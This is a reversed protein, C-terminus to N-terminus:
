SRLRKGDPDYVPDLTVSASSIRGDVRIHIERGEQAMPVPVWAMGIGIGMTPSQRSSTVRGVPSYGAVVPDGERPISGDRMVFGGLKIDSGREKAAVLGPRGIFDEKDFRVAWSINSNLPNSVLDTDQGPIIHMKELRLIRQAEIGFPGIGFEMGADMITDWMYEGYESPFHLEWSAEGVFGIRLFTCPVGAVEGQASRMYRFSTPTLDVSTLKALTERARPGAVNVASLASTINTVHACMGTGALWWKFWEEVVDVSLTSTTVFYHDEGLRTVTGDDMISGDDECLLGYRIRGNKLGSFTHTYVKDLLAPADRGVVDLKGLSSVDCIGVRERVTLCEQSPSGYGYPREWTGADIMQAGAERHKSDISTRKIPIYSPGALDGLSLPRVPPRSTPVGTKDVSRGTHEATIGVYRKLCMKGQCPGMTVTSYRKLTEIDDFGEDVAQTIDKTTVDECYCVFQRSGQGLRMPAAATVLKGRYAAEALALQRRVTSADTDNGGSDKTLSAASEMGALRGQLVALRTDHVGTVEGAAYLTEPLRRPVPEDLEPDFTFGAGGQHLLASAPQFGGSMVIMDCDFQREETSPLGDILRALVGGTVKNAGQARTLLHSALVLVGRSQLDVAAEMDGPFDPRSDALAAVRVGANELDLAVRYGQDTSACVIATTGPKIGYLHILRQAATSLMVGPLDNRDFTLPSEYSGSAVVVRKARLKTIRGNEHIGLLNGEYLGFATADSLVEISQTSRVLNSLKAALEYGAMSPMDPLDLHKAADYRLHGGLTPQDDILIVGAGAGAASLAASMGAPGGGVVAVDAHRFQHRSKSESDLRSDVSGLGAVRRIVQSAIRWLLRPRYLAKYYFGVPMAWGFRDLISLLDRDLSPWANQRRVRMGARVPETCARVNPVGDVTMLCNPCHGAACLLGRARHYKFSRSFIRVGSAYLASAVTDGQYAMVPKGDFEFEIAGARDIVHTASHPLRGAQSSGLM